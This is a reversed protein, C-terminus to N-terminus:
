ELVLLISKGGEATQNVAVCNIFSDCVLSNHRQEIFSPKDLLLDAALNDVLPELRWTPFHELSKDDQTLVSRCATALFRM